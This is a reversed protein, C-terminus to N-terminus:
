WVYDLRSRRPYGRYNSIAYSDGFSLMYEITDPDVWFSGDPQNWRKPGKIWKKGWSNIVLGGHRRSLTDTGALLMAHYWKESIPKAFGDEDRENSFGQDSCLIIPYGNSTADCAEDWTKVVAATRVPHEKCLSILEEPVGGGWTTCENCKHAWARAKLGDYTTFDFDGYAQRLLSGYHMCWDAAWEGACGDRFPLNGGAIQVRAGAHIVETAAKGAWRELRRLSYMQVCTLVDIGLGYAQSVCDGIKQDHPVLPAKTARELYKWLLALKRRGTRQLAYNFTAFEPRHKAPGPRWGGDIPKKSRTAEALLQGPSMAGAVLTGGALSLFSRRDM